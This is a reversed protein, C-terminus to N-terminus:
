TAPRTSRRRWRPARSTRRRRHRATLGVIAGRADPDWYPAGLGTFAPVLYVGGTDAIGNPSASADAAADAIVRLGDRLWQVAAGAVFISGELAYTPEGGLRYAITTSCATARARASARRHEAAVFCGTGYTSKIMGPESAPRASRRRRSTAPWAPSRCPPASCRRGTAGFGAACDRVEPLIARPITSAAAAARRGLGPPALDFLLTRSANTADTAHVTGGTLRWLLFSDVTGFALEGREARPARARRRQRAALRDQDGLLVPRDAPRHAEGLEADGVEGRLRRCLEATRRDQWVIARHIPEGTPATGCSRRRASTPSASARRGSAAGRRANRSRARPVDVADDRWIEEPDHEVWGPQPYHQTLEEQASAVPVGEADFLIARTSTTGQDIALLYRSVIGGGEAAIAPLAGALREYDATENFVQASVRIWLAGAFPM